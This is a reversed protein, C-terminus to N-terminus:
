EPGKTTNLPKTGPVFVGSVPKALIRYEADETGSIVDQVIQYEMCDMASGVNSFADLSLTVGHISKIVVYVM